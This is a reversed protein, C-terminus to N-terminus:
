WHLACERGKRLLEEKAMQTTEPKSISRRREWQVLCTCARKALAQRNAIARRCRRTSQSCYLSWGTNYVSFIWAGCARWRLHARGASWPVKTHVQWLLFCTLLKEIGKFMRYYLLDVISNHTVRSSAVGFWSFLNLWIALLKARKQTELHASTYYVLMILSRRPPIYYPQM